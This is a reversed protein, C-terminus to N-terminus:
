ERARQLWISGGPNILYGPMAAAFRERHFTTLFTTFWRVRFATNFSLFARLVYAETWNRGEFVWERPYEFPYFIDHFHVHVGPRLKPLIDFFATNVDSNVKSVHTSDIFLVDNAELTAFVDTPVDQLPLELIKTRAADDGRLLSRLRDPYPEIFTCAISGGFFRDNTDLTVASSFGSGVEIVRKPRLHRLM